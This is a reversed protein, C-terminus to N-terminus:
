DYKRPIFWKDNFSFGLTFRVYTEQLLGSATTGLSGVVLAAHLQSTSRRFPLSAGITAGFDPLVTNSLDLYSTGYYLGFRYTCRSFYSRYNNVDPTYDGGLSVKYAKNAIGYNMFADQASNFGSWQTAAYDVGIDWHDNKCLMAGISYSMPLTLKGRQEGANAMTDNIVTDGFNYTSIQFASYREEINQKMTITGGIRITYGSDIKHEYMVGGKWQLGGIRNSSTYEATNAGVTDIPVTATTNGITGFLYGLNAGFSFDGFKFAAGAYVYSLSGSGSYSNVVSGISSNATDALNYYVKSYPKFGLCIGSHKSVPIGLTLYDLSFTGTTYSSGVGDVTGNVSRLSGTAGAEFTVRQLFAYSAPNDSNIQYPNEYASTISGMGKLVANNGDWLEGIGYKSYPNNERESLPNSTNTGSSATTQALAGLSGVLFGSLLLFRALSHCM